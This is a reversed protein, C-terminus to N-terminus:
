NNDGFDIKATGPGVFVKREANYANVLLEDNYFIYGLHSQDFVIYKQVRELNIYFNCNNKVVPGHAGFILIDSNEALDEMGDLYDEEGEWSSSSLYTLRQNNDSVSLYLIPHSSREILAIESLLFKTDNVLETDENHSYIECATGAAQIVDVLQAMIWADDETEPYPLLVLRVKKAAIFRAVTSIHRTHYHTLILKEFETVGDSEAQLLSINLATYTGDSIDVLAAKDECQAVLTDDGFMSTVTVATNKPLVSFSILIVAGFVLPYTSPILLLWKKHKIKIVLLVIIIATFICVAVKVENSELSVLANRKESFHAAIDLMIRATKKMVIELFDGFYPIGGALLYLLSAALMPAAALSSALNSGFGCVSTEGFLYSIPLLTLCLASSISMFAASVFVLPKKVIKLFVATKRERRQKGEKKDLLNNLFDNFLPLFSVIGLTACFSLIFSKDFVATPNVLIILVAAIGLANLSDSLDGMSYALFVVMLMIVSRVASIPFGLISLYGLAFAAVLFNRLSRRIRLRLLVFSVIGTIISVHIGSVALYHSMGARSFDRYMDSTLDTKDGLLMASILRGEAGRINNRIKASLYSNWGALRDTFSLNNESLIACDCEEASTVSLYIEESILSFAEDDDDLEDVCVIIANRLVFEYGKQLDSSYECYLIAKEGYEIGNVSHLRVAYETFYESSLRRETVTAHVYMKEGCLSRATPVERYFILLGRILAASFVVTLLVNVFLRYSSIRKRSFLVVCVIVLLVCVLLLAINIQIFCFAAALSATVALIGAAIGPRGGFINM